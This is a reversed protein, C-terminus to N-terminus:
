RIDFKRRHSLLLPPHIYRQCVFATDQEDVYSILDEIDKSIKIGDGSELYM